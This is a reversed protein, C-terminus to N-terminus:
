SNILSDISDRALEGNRFIVRSISFQRHAARRSLLRRCTYCHRISRRSQDAHRFLRDISRGIPQDCFHLSARPDWSVAVRRHTGRVKGNTSVAFPAARYDANDHSYSHMELGLRLLQGILHFRYREIDRYVGRVREGANRCSEELVRVSCNWSPIGCRSQIPPQVSQMRIVFLRPIFTGTFKDAM